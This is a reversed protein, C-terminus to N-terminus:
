FLAMQNPDVKTWDGNGFFVFVREDNDRRRCWATGEPDLRNQDVTVEVGSGTRIVQGYTIHNTEM